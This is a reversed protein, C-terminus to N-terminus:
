NQKAKKIEKKVIKRLFDTRNDLKSLFEIIEADTKKNFKFSVQKVNKKAWENRYEKKM